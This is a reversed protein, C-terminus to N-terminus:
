LYVRAQALSAELVDGASLLKFATTDIFEWSGTRNVTVISIRVRGSTLREWQLGAGQRATVLGIGLIDNPGYTNAPDAYGLITLQASGWGHTDFTLIVSNTQGDTPHSSVTWV